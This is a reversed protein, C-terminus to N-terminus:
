RCSTRTCRNLAPKGQIALTQASALVCGTCQSGHSATWEAESRDRLDWRRSRLVRLDGHPLNRRERALSQAGMGMVAEWACLIIYSLLVRHSFRAICSVIDAMQEDPPQTLPYYM